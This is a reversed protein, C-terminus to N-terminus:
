YDDVIAPIMRLNRSNKMAKDLVKREYPNIKTKWSAVQAFRNILKLRIKELLMVISMSRYKDVWHNFSKSMNNTVNKVKV